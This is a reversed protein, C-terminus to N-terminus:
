EKPVPAAWTQEGCHPCKVLKKRMWFPILLASLIPLGFKAGCKGCQYDFSRNWLVVFVVVMALVIFPMVYEPM